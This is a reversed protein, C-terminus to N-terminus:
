GRISKFQQKNKLYEEVSPTHVLMHVDLELADAVAVGIRFSTRSLCREGSELRQYLRINISAIDAVQQQTLNLSERQTKLISFMPKESEGSQKKEGM